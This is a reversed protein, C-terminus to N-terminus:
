NFYSIQRKRPTKGTSKDSALVCNECLNWGDNALQDFKDQFESLSSLHTAILEDHKAIQFTCANFLSHLSEHGQAVLQQATASVRDTRALNNTHAARASDCIGTTWAFLAEQLQRPQASIEVCASELDSISADILELLNSTETKIQEHVKQIGTSLDAQHAQHLAQLSNIDSNAVSLQSALNTAITEIRSTFDADQKVKHELRADLKSEVDVAFAEIQATLVELLRHKQQQIESKMQANETRFDAMQQTQTAQMALVDKLTAQNAASIGSVHKSIASSFTEMFAQRETLIAMIQSCLEGTMNSLDQKVSSIRQAGTEVRVALDELILQNPDNVISSDLLSSFLDTQEATSAMKLEVFNAALNDLQFQRSDAALTVKQASSRVHKNSQSIREVFSTSEVELWGVCDQIRELHNFM